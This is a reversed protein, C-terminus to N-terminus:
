ESQAERLEDTSSEKGMQIGLIFWEQPTEPENIETPDSWLHGSLTQKTHKDEIRKLCEILAEGAKQKKNVM